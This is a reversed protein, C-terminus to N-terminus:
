YKDEATLYMEAIIKEKSPQVPKWSKENNDGGHDDDGNGIREDIDCNAVCFPMAVTVTTM